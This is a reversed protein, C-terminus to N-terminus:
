RDHHSKAQIDARLDQRRRPQGEEAEAGLLGRGVPAAHERGPTLEHDQARVDDQQRPEGDEHDDQSEVEDAVGQAIEEVRPGVGASSHADKSLPTDKDTASISSPSLMSRSLSTPLALCPSRSAKASTMWRKWCM